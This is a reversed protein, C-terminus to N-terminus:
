LDRVAIQLLRHWRAKSEVGPSLSAESSSTTTTCARIQSDTAGLFSLVRVVLERFPSDDSAHALLILRPIAFGETGTARVVTAYDTVVEKAETLDGTGVLLFALTFRVRVTQPAVRLVKRAVRTAEEYAEAELLADIAVGYLPAALEAPASLERPHLLPERAPGKSTM